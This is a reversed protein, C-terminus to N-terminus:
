RFPRRDSADALRRLPRVKSRAQSAVTLVETCPSGTRSLRMSSLRIPLAILNVGCPPMPKRRGGLSTVIMDQQADGNAIGADADRGVHVLPDELIEDLGVVADRPPEAAGAESERDRAPEGAQHAALQRHLARRARAARERKLHRKAEGRAADRLARDLRRRPLEAHQQDVVIGDIALDALRHQVPEAMARRDRSFPADAM